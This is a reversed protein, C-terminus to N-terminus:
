GAAALEYLFEVHSRVAGDVGQIKPSKSEILYYEDPAHAGSGHGFGFQIAGLKLPEGTFVYGPWSGANRPWVIPDIGNRKYVTTEVRVPLSDPSTSTPDYGGTMNVEIDGFGRKALHAKLKALADMATMDPVLRLDMKAVARHPLITKGGPGTYGGVLGEINITPQSCLMELSQRFSVDHVWHQVGLQRKLTEEDQRKAAEDIMAKEASSVPRVRDLYHEVLISNGDPSVLSALAEVLHWAPSDLRAKNSSHVDLKPGRGWKEGTSVLELEIVGKAGLSLTVTGDLAQTASPTLVGACKGLAATVDPRRVIQQINPSGIEEESECVFILNVPLKRGAGRIAHVAALFAGQPGKSNVAGRGVLVKGLGAKDTLTPTFPPSSWESPDVQKVDYMIYVALTKPAGADLTGFVGPHRDTPCKVVQGCGVDRLLQMMLDAGEAIGKDEAAITPQRIWEQIRRVSEDHRKEVESFVPKLDSTSQARAAPLLAAGAAATLFARRDITSSAALSM